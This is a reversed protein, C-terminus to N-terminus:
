AKPLVPKPGGIVLVDPSGLAAMMGACGIACDGDPGPSNCYECPKYVFTCPRLSLEDYLWKDHCYQCQWRRPPAERPPDLATLWMHRQSVGAM